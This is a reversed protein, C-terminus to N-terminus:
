PAELWHLSAFCTSFSGTNHDAKTLMLLFGVSQSAQQWPTQSLMYCHQLFLAYLLSLPFHSQVLQLPHVSSSLFHSPTTPLRQRPYQTQWPCLTVKACPWGQHRCLGCVEFPFKNLSSWLSHKRWLLQLKLYAECHQSIEGLWCNITDWCCKSKFTDYSPSQLWRMWATGELGSDHHDHAMQQRSEWSPHGTRQGM